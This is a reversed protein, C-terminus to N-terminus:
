DAATNGLWSLIDEVLQAPCEMPIMHGTGEIVRLTAGLIGHSLETAEVLSRLRDQAGALVLTRCRVEHLRDLDAPRDLMLQSHLVEPGLRAGMAQIREVLAQDGARDPHLSLAISSRSLSVAPSAAVMAATAAKRKAQLATEGRASTAILVLAQVRDPAMRAMERAVYGGMSFGILIFSGPADALARQAMAPISGDRSLDAHFTPGLGRLGGEVDRWLDPDTMFGPVLVLTM